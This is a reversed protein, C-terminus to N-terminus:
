ISNIEVEIEIEFLKKKEIKKSKECMFDQECSIEVDSDFMISTPHFLSLVRAYSRFYALTHGVTHVYRNSPEFQNGTLKLDRLSAFLWIAM